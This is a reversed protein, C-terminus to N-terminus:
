HLWCTFSPRFGAAIAEEESCFWRDARITRRYSGCGPLHYIGRHGTFRARLAYKGKIECGPPKFGYGAFLMARAEPPCSSGLLGATHRRGRRFDRPVVFCGRWIGLPRERAEREADAFRGSPEASLAWGEKVLWHQLDVGGVTCHGIRHRPFEPDRGLDRCHIPRSAILEQLAEAAFLGCPYMGNDDLCHQDLALADIGELRFVTGDVTLTGADDARAVDLAFLLFSLTLLLRM